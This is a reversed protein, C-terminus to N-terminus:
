RGELFFKTLQFLVASMPKEVLPNLYDSFADFNFYKELAVKDNHDSPKGAREATVMLLKKKVGHSDHFIIIECMDPPSMPLIAIKNSILGNSLRDISYMVCLSVFLLDKILRSIVGPYKNLEAYIVEKHFFREAFENNLIWNRFVSVSVCALESSSTYYIVHHGEGTRHLSRKGAQILEFHYNLAAAKAKDNSTYDIVFEPKNLRSYSIKDLTDESNQMIPLDKLRFYPHIEQANSKLLHYQYCLADIFYRLKLGFQILAKAKQKQDQISRFVNCIKSINDNNLYTKLIYNHEDSTLVSKEVIKDDHKIDGMTDNYISLLTNLLQFTLNTLMNINMAPTKTSVDCSNLLANIREAAFYGRDDMSLSLYSLLFTRHQSWLPETTPSTTLSPMFKMRIGRIFTVADLAKILLRQSENASNLAPTMSANKVMMAALIDLQLYTGILHKFIYDPKQSASRENFHFFYIEDSIIISAETTITDARALVAGYQPELM